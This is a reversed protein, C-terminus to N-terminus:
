CKLSDLAALINQYLEANLSTKDKYPKLANLMQRLEGKVKPLTPLQALEAVENNTLKLAAKTEDIDGSTMYHYQGVMEKTINMREFRNLTMRSVNFHAALDEKNTIGMQLAYHYNEITLTKPYLERLVRYVYGASVGVTEAIETPTLTKSLEKIQEKITM